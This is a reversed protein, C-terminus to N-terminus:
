YLLHRHDEMLKQIDLLLRKHADPLEVCGKLSGYHEELCALLLNQLAPWDPAYRLKSEAYVKALEKEKIDFWAVLDEEKVEGRRIAKMYEKSRTLDITGLTLIQEVEDLLRALHYLFKVDTNFRKWSEFRKSGVCGSEFHDLYSRYEPLQGFKDKAEALTTEHAIGHDQEFERVFKVNKDKRVSQAKSLQSFSYGKFSHYARKQLFLDRNDRVMQGIKTISRVCWQPTYLSGIMNPNNEAVLHFYKVIGYITLDYKNGTSKDELTKETNFQEFKPPAPGFGQIFGALHPFLLEKSPICWGYIDNDSTDTSCGYAVSGVTTLYQINDAMWKPPHILGKKELERIVSAM